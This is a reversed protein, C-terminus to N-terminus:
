SPQGGGTPMEALELVDIGAALGGCLTALVITWVIAKRGRTQGVRWIGFCVLSWFWIVFPNLRRLLIYGALGVGPGTAFAAASSEVRSAELARVLGARVVLEPIEVLWAFGIVGAILRYNPKGVTLAIIVFWAGALLGVLTVSLTPRGFVLWIRMLQKSFEAGKYLNDIGATVLEFEEDAEHEKQFVAVAHHTKEDIEYQLVGTHYTLWGCASEFIFLFVLAAGVRNCRPLYDFLQRPWFFLAAIDSILSPSADGPRVTEGRDSSNEVAEAM